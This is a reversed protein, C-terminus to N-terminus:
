KTIIDWDFSVHDKIQVIVWAHNTGLEISIPRSIGSFM